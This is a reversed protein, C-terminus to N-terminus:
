EKPDADKIAKLKAAMDSPFIGAHYLADLQDGITPYKNKRIEAYNPYYTCDLEVIEAVGREIENIMADYHRNNGDPAEPFTRDLNDPHKYYLMEIEDTAQGNIDVRYTIHKEYSIM